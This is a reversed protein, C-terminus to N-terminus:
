YWIYVVCRIWLVSHETYSWCHYFAAASTVTWAVSAPQSRMILLQLLIFFFFYIFRQSWWFLARSITASVPEGTISVFFPNNEIPELFKEKQSLWFFIERKCNFKRSRIPWNGPLTRLNTFVLFFTYSQQHGGRSNEPDPSSRTDLSKKKWFIWWLIRCRSIWNIKKMRQTHWNFIPGFDFLRTLFHLVRYPLQFLALKFHAAVLIKECVVLM